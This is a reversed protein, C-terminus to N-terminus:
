QEVVELAPLVRESLLGELFQLEPYSPVIDLVYGLTRPVDKLYGHRGDRHLLRAFIGAAKLHRQAGMMDFDKQFRDLDNDQGRREFFAIANSQTFSAPLKIYCDRLLSVIDYTYPGELADQFDIIGPNNHETVMLNRSHYDRHVFTTPQNLAREILVDCCATWQSEEDQSFTLGLHKEFLWERFISLEFRLLKEDYPPLSKQMAEGETQLTILAEIADSYLNAAADPSAQLKDLYQTTGLDSLLMFGQAYDVDVIDPSNLGMKQLYGAITIFRESDERSPPADMVIYSERGQVRFYRRFSADVSAPVPNADALGDIQRVWETLHDLREDQNM